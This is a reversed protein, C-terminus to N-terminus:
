DYIYLRKHHGGEIPLNVYWGWPANGMHQDWTREDTFYGKLTHMMYYPSEISVVFKGTEHDYGYIDVKYTKGNHKFYSAM